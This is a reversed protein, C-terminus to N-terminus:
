ALSFHVFASRNEDQHCAHNLRYPQQVYAFVGRNYSCLFPFSGLLGNRSLCQKLIWTPRETQVCALSVSLHVLGHVPISAPCVRSQKATRASFNASISILALRDKQLIGFGLCWAYSSVILFRPLGNLPHPMFVNRIVVPM